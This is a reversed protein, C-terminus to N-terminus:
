PLTGPELPLIPGQLFLFLQELCWDLFGLEEFVEAYEPEKKREREIPRGDEYGVYFSSYVPNYKPLDKKAVNRWTIAGPLRLTAILEKGREYPDPGIYYWAPFFIYNVGARLSPPVKGPNNWENWKRAYWEAEAAALLTGGHWDQKIEFVENTSITAIDARGPHQTPIGKVDLEIGVLSLVLGVKSGGPIVFEAIAGALPFTRQYHLQIM